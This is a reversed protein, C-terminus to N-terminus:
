TASFGQSRQYERWGDYFNLNTKAHTEEPTKHKCNHLYAGHFDREMGEYRSLDITRLGAGLFNCNEFESRGELRLGKIQLGRFDGRFVHSNQLHLNYFDSDRFVCRSLSTEAFYANHLDSSNFSVSVFTSSIVQMGNLTGKKFSNRELTCGEIKFGSMEAGHFISDEIKSEIFHCNELKANTFNSNSLSCGAWVTESFDANEFIASNITMGRFQCGSLDLQYNHDREYNLMELSRRSIVDVAIQVDARTKQGLSANNHRIYACFIQSIPIHDRPSDRAIRELAYIAGIRVELNPETTESSKNKVLKEAGLGEVAKNIRDTIMGQEAVNVQKQAVVARWVVFPAGTMAVIIGTLGFKAFGGQPVEGFVAAGLLKFAAIIALSFLGGVILIAVITILPGIARAKHWDFKEALGFWARASHKKDDM